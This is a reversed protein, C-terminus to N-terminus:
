LDHLVVEVSLQLWSGRWAKSTVRAFVVKGADILRAVVENKERPVYGVKRGQLTDIRIALDDYANAPERMCLLRLGTVMEPEIEDIDDVYSTGRVDCTLLVIEREYPLGPPASQLNLMLALAAPNGASSSPVIADAM